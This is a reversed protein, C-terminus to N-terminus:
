DRWYRFRRSTSSRQFALWFCGRKSYSLDFRPEQTYFVATDNNLMNRVTIEFDKFDKLDSGDANITPRTWTGVFSDGSVVVNLNTPAGPATTDADATFNLSLSWSSPPGDGGLARVQVAYQKGATLNKLELRKRAM